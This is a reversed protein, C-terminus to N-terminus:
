HFNRGRVDLEQVMSSVDYLLGAILHRAGAKDEFTGKNASAQNASAQCAYAGIM